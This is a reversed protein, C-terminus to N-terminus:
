KSSACIRRLKTKQSPTIGNIRDITEDIKKRDPSWAAETVKMADVPSLGEAILRNFLIKMREKVPLYKKRPENKKWQAKEEPPLTTIHPYLNKIEDGSLGIQYLSKVTITEFLDRYKVIREAHDAALVPIAIIEAADAKNLDVKKLPEKKKRRPIRQNYVVPEVEMPSGASTIGFSHTTGLFTHHRFGYEASITGHIVTFSFAASNTDPSYGGRLILNRLLNASFAASKELGFHSDYIGAALALGKRPTFQLLAGTEPFLLDRRDDNILSALGRQYILLSIRKHPIILASLNVDSFAHSFSYGEDKISLHYYSAAASFSFYKGPNHAAAGTFINESYGETGFYTWEIDAASNRYQSGGRIRFASLEDMSYPRSGNMSLYWDNMFPSLAPDGGGAARTIELLAVRGPFLAAPPAERYEFAAAASLIIATILATM